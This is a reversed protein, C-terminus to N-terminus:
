ARTIEHIFAYSGLRREVKAIFRQATQVSRFTRVGTVLQGTYVYVTVQM